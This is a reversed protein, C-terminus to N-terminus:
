GGAGKGNGNNRNQSTNPNRDHASKRFWSSSRPASVSMDSGAAPVLFGALLFTVILLIALMSFYFSTLGTKDLLTVFMDFAYGLASTVLQVVEIAM